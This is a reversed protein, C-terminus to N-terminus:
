KCKKLNWPDAHTRVIRDASIPPHYLRRRGGYPQSPQNAGEGIASASTNPTISSNSTNPSCDTTTIVLKTFRHRAWILGESTLRTCAILNLQKLDPLMVGLVQLARDRIGCDVITLTDIMKLKGLRHCQESNWDSTVVVHKLHSMNTAIAILAPEGLVCRDLHLETLRPIETALQAIHCPERHINPGLLKVKLIAHAKVFSKDKPSLFSAGYMRTASPDHVYGGFKRVFAPNRIPLVADHWLGPARSALAWQKCVQAAGGLTWTDLFRFMHELIEVPMTQLNLGSPTETVTRSGAYRSPKGNTNWNPTPKNVLKGTKSVPALAVWRKGPLTAPSTSSSSTSSSSYSSSASPLTVSVPGPWMRKSARKSQNNSPLAVNSNSNWRNSDSNMNSGNINQKQNKNKYM